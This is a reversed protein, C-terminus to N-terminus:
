HLYEYIFTRYGVQTRKTHTQMCTHKLYLAHATKKCGPKSKGLGSVSPVNPSNAHNMSTLLVQKYVRM